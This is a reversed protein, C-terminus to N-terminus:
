RSSTGNSCSCGEDDSDRHRAGCGECRPFRLDLLSSLAQNADEIIARREDTMDEQYCNVYIRGLNVWFKGGFGLRGIFRYEPTPQSRVFSMKELLSPHAGAKEVLIEYVENWFGEDEATM